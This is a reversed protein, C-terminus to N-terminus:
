DFFSPGSSDDDEGTGPTLRVGSGTVMSSDADIDACNRIAYLVKETMTDLSTYRPLEIQFFCTHGIPFLKDDIGARTGSRAHKMIEFKRTFGAANLPLRSRGWAFTLLAKRDDDDFRDRMMQWFLQVHPDSSACSSYNTNEALLDVDVASRGCVLTQLEEWTFLSLLPDPVVTALGRRMAMTHASFENLRFNVLLKIFKKREAYTVKKKEGDVVLPHLKKDSGVAVFKVDMNSDFADATMWPDAVSKEIEQVIAFSLRDVSRVDDETIPENVLPKWIISPLNLSLFSQTRIALGMLKGLFEYL